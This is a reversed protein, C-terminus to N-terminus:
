RAFSLGRVTEEGVGGGGGWVCVCECCGDGKMRGGACAGVGVGKEVGSGGGNWVMLDVCGLCFFWM